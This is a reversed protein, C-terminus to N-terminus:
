LQQEARPQAVLEAVEVVRYLGGYVKLRPPVVQEPRSPTPLSYYCQGYVVGVVFLRAEAQFPGHQYVVAVPASPGKEAERCTDEGM